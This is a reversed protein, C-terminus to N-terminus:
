ATTFTWGMSPLPNGALDRIATTGGILDFRYTTGPALPATPTLTWTKGSNSSTLTAPVVVGSAANKLVFTTSTVGTVPESFGMVLSKTTPVGTAGVAHSWTTLLPRWGTLFEWNVSSFPNGALDRVATVGGVISVRYKTDEAMPASPFIRWIKGNSSSTITGTILAGTALNRAFFTSANVGTVPETFTAQIITTPEVGTDAVYPWYYSMVPGPGTLFTWTTPALVDNGSKIASTLQARYLRDPALNATPDLIAMNASSLYTVTAPVVASTTTDVLRFTTGDVGSVQTSFTAVVNTGVQAAKAGDVPKVTVSIPVAHAEVAGVLGGVIVMVVALVGRATTAFTRRM